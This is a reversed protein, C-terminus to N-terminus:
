RGAVPAGRAAQVVPAVDAAVRRLLEGLVAAHAQPTDAAAHLTYPQESRQQLMGDPGQLVTRVVTYLERRDRRFDLPAFEVRLAQARAQATGGACEAECLTWGPLQARLAATLERTLGVEIREAWFVGPWDDVTTEDVRYRVRRALLYEPLVPRRVVLVPAAPPGSPAGSLAAGGAPASATAAPVVAPALATASSPAGLSPLALLTGSPPASACGALLAATATAARRLLPLANM